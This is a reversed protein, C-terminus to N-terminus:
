KFFSILESKVASLSSYIAEKGSKYKNQNANLLEYYNDKNKEKYDNDNTISKYKNIYSKANIIDEQYKNLKEELLDFYWEEFTNLSNINNNISQIKDELDNNDLSKSKILEKKENLLKDIRKQYVSNEDIFLNYYKDIYSNGNKQLENYCSTINTDNTFENLTKISSLFSSYNNLLYNLKDLKDISPTYNPINFCNYYNYVEDYDSGVGLSSIDKRYNINIDNDFIIDNKNFYEDFESKINSVNYFNNSYINLEFENWKSSNKLLYGMENQRSVIINMAESFSKNTLDEDFIILSGDEDNAKFSSVKSNDDFTLIIKSPANIEVIANNINQLNLSYSENNSFIKFSFITIVTALCAFSVGFVPIFNFSKKDKKEDFFCSESKIFDLSTNHKLIDKYYKKVKREIKSM